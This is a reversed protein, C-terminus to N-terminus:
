TEATPGLNRSIPAVDQFTFHAPKRGRGREAGGRWQPLGKGIRERVPSIERLPAFACLRSVYPISAASRLNATAFARLYVCIGSFLLLVGGASGKRMGAGRWQAVAPTKRTVSPEPIVGASACHRLSLWFVERILPDSRRVPQDQRLINRFSAPLFPSM